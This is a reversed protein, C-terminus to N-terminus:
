VELLYGWFFIELELIEMKERGPGQTRTGEHVSASAPHELLAEPFGTRNWKLRKPLFQEVKKKFLFVLKTNYRPLKSYNRFGFTETMKCPNRNCDGSFLKTNCERFIPMKGWFSSSNWADMKQPSFTLKLPPIYIYIYM